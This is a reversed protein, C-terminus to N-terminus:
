KTGSRGGSIQVAERAKWDKTQVSRVSAGEQARGKGIRKVLVNKLADQGFRTPVRKGQELQRASQRRGFKRPTERARRRDRHSAPNLCTELSPYRLEWRGGPAEEKDRSGLRGAIRSEHPPGGLVEPDILGRPSLDFRIAQQFHRWLYNETMRQDTRSDVFRRRRGVSAVHVPCESVGSIGPDVRVAPRPVQGLGRPM